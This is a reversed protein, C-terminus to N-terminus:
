PPGGHQPRREAINSLHTPLLLRPDALPVLLDDFVVFLVSSVRDLFRFVADILLCGGRFFGGRGLLDLGELHELGLELDLDLFQLFQLRALSDHRPRRDRVRLLRTARGPRPTSPLFSCVVVNPKGM